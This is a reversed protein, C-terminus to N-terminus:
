GVSWGNDRVKAGHKIMPFLEQTHADQVQVSFPGLPGSELVTGM